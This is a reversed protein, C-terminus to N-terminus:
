NKITLDIISPKPYGLIAYAQLILNLVYTGIDSVHISYM